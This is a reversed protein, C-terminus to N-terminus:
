QKYFKSIEVEGDKRVAKVLYIGSDLTQLQINHVTGSGSSEMIKTGDISYLKWNFPLKLKADAEINIFSVAPNPGIKLNFPEENFSRIEGLSFNSLTTECREDNLNLKISTISSDVDSLFFNGNLEDMKKGDLIWDFDINDPINEAVILNIPDKWWIIRVDDINPIGLNIKVYQTDFELCTPNKSYAIGLLYSEKLNNSDIPNLLFSHTTTSSTFVPNITSDKAILTLETLDAAENNLVSSILITDTFSCTSYIDKLLVENEIELKLEALTDSDCLTNSRIYVDTLLAPLGLNDLSQAQNIEFNQEMGNDTYYITYSSDPPVIDLNNGFPMCTTVREFRIKNPTYFRDDLEFDINFEAATIRKIDLSDQFYITDTSKNLIIRELPALITESYEIKYTLSELLKEIVLKSDCNVYDTILNLSPEPIDIRNSNIIKCTYIGPQIFYISDINIDSNSVQYISDNTIPITLPGAQTFIHLTDNEIAGAIKLNLNDDFDFLQILISDSCVQIEDGMQSHLNGM